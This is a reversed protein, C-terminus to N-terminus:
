GPGPPRIGGLAAAPAFDHDIVIDGYRYGKTQAYDVNWRGSNHYPLMADHAVESSVTTHKLISNSVGNQVTLLSRLPQIPVTQSSAQRASAPTPWARPSCSLRRM